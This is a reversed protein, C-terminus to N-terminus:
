VYFNELCAIYVIAQPTKTMFVTAGYRRSKNKPNRATVRMEVVLIEEIVAFVHAGTISPQLHCSERVNNHTDDLIPKGGCTEPTHCSPRNISSIPQQRLILTDQPQTLEIKTKFYQVNLQFLYLLFCLLMNIIQVDELKSLCYFLIYKLKSVILYVLWQQITMLFFQPNAQSVAPASLEASLVM